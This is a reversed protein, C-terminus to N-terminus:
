LGSVTGLSRCGVEVTTIPLWFLGYGVVTISQQCTFADFSLDIAPDVTASEVRYGVILLDHLPHDLHADVENLWPGTRGEISTLSPLIMGASLVVVIAVVVHRLRLWGIGARRRGHVDGTPLSPTRGV